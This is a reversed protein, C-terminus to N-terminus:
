GVRRGFGTPQRQQVLPSTGRGLIALTDEFMPRLAVVLEILEDPTEHHEVCARATMEITEAAIGLKLGGLQLAEGKLKHAALVMAAPDNARMAEEIKDVSQFGDEQFYGLLRVFHPGLAARTDAWVKWDILESEVPEM